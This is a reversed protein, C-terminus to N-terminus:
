FAEKINIVIGMGDDVWSLDLRINFRQNPILAYRLGLGTSFKFNDFSLDKIKSSVQASDVFMTLGFRSTLPFRYESQFSLLDSDRYRGKELGRLVDTGDPTSLERFPVSGEGYRYYVGIALCTQNGLSFYECLNVDYIIYKFESNFIASYNIFSYKFFTGSYPANANDRTDYGFLFGLGSVNEGDYGIISERNIIEDNWEIDEYLYRYSIGLFCNNILSTNIKKELDLKIELNTAEYSKPDDPSNNGTQYYNAPWIQATFDLKLLYTGNKLYFDPYFSLEFQNNLTALAACGISSPPIDSSITPYYYQILAGLQLSTESSSAIIPIIAYNGSKKKQSITELQNTNIEKNDQKAFVDFSFLLFNIIIFFFLFIKSLIIKYNQFLMMSLQSIIIIQMLKM